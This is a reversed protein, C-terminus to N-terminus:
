DYVALTEQSEFLGRRQRMYVRERFGDSVFRVFIWARAM